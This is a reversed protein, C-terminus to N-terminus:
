ISRRAATPMETDASEIGTQKALGFDLLKAIGGTVFM